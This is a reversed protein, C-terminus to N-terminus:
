MPVGVSTVNSPSTTSNAMEAALERVDSLLRDPRRAADITRVHVTRSVKPMAMDRDRTEGSAYVLWGEPLGFEVMYALMQFVDANPIAGTPRKYKCDGVLRCRDDHWWTLDPELRVDGAADLYRRNIQQPPPFASPQLGLAERLATRVFREFVSNMDVLVASADHHGTRAELGTSTLILRGLHVAPRYRENLRTWHPDPTNRVDSGPASVGTFM